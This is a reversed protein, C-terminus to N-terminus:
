DRHIPQCVASRITKRDKSRQRLTITQMGVFYTRDEYGEYDPNRMEVGRKVEAVQNSALSLALFGQNKM